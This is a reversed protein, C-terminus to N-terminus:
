GIVTTTPPPVFPPILQWQETQFNWVYTNGDNPYPIPPIWSCTSPDWVFYDAPCPAAFGGYDGCEPRFTYGVGAYRFRFNSNYSTQKWIAPPLFTNLYAIGVPESDPFPLNDIDSNNVAVVDVVIGADNLQAFYAM